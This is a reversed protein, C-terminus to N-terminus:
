LTDERRDIIRELSQLQIIDIHELEMSEVILGRNLLRHLREVVHHSRTFNSVDTHATTPCPLELQHLTLTM